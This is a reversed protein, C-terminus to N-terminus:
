SRYYSFREQRLKFQNCLRIPHLFKLFTMKKHKKKLAMKKHLFRTNKEIGDGTTRSLTRELM